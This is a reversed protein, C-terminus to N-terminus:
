WRAATLLKGIHVIVRQQLVGDGAVLGCDQATRM